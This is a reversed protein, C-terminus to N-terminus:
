QISDFCTEQDTTVDLHEVLLSCPPLPHAIPDALTIVHVVPCRLTTHAGAYINVMGAVRHAYLPRRCSPCVCANYKAITRRERRDAGRRADRRSFRQGAVLVLHLTNKLDRRVTRSWRGRPSQPCRRQPRSPLPSPTSPRTIQAVPARRSRSDTPRGPAAEYNSYLRTATNAPCHTWPARRRRTRERENHFAMPQSLISLSQRAGQAPKPPASVSSPERLVRKSIEAVHPLEFCDLTSRM